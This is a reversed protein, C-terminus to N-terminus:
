EVEFACEKTASINKSYRNMLYFVQPFVEMYKFFNVFMIVFMSCMESLKVTQSM